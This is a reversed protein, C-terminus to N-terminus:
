PARMAVHDLARQTSAHTSAGQLGEDPHSPLM